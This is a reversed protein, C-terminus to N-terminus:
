FGLDEGILIVKIKKAPRSTRTTVMQSCICDPSLCDGCSGNLYCPTKMDQFHQMNSPAAITRTRQIADDLTKVVKNMGAVVIVSKPGFIMAAVRNGNGDINFLQGDESIANSSMLFTDCLLAKRMLETREEPSKGTDRDIVQYGKEKVLEKIGIETLTESGGWSVVHNEPILDLIQQVAEDKTKCYYADFHRKKLAEIVKSSLKDYRKILLSQRTM